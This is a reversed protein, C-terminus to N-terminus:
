CCTRCRCCPLCPAFCSLPNSRKKDDPARAKQHRVFSLFVQELTTQHVSYDQVNLSQKAGEMLSFINALKVNSDEIHIHIYGFHDDFVKASSIQSQIFEIVPENPAMQGDTLHGMQAILTYGQGFKNKLHQPSGLCMFRGNVMIAIRTCLADCEEMSHSTLVLTRGSARVQSLVTWLQRRAGPDMGSTPEDLLIFAPDGVLSLATSLKRKNGGSYAGVLKDAHPKLMLVDILDDCVSSIHEKPVGKLNCFLTLTERGTMHDLLADFQPCYGMNAQVDKINNKIDFKNVYANGETPEELGTLMKFTTSKGAGNQGLLGFCEQAPVGVSIHDVAPFHGFQKVLDAIVLSDSVLLQPLPTLQIREGEKIVDHDETTMWKPESQDSDEVQDSGGQNDRELLPSSENVQVRSKYARALRHFFGYEFLFLLSAYFVCQLALLLINRGIAPSSLSLTDSEFDLCFDGCNGYDRCCPFTINLKCVEQYNYDYCFEKNKHNSYMDVIAMGLNFNPFLIGLAYRLTDAGSRSRSTIIVIYTLLTSFISTFVHYMLTVVLGSAPAKFLFQLVYSFPLVSMGYAVLLLFFPFVNGDGIYAKEDFALFVFIIFVSPLIYNIYDGIFNPLWYMFPSVGSVNQLHKSGTEREQILPFVFSSVLFAMGFTINTSITVGSLVASDSKQKSRDEAEMPMPFISTEISYDSGMIYKVLAQMVTVLAIPEAHWPRDNFFASVVSANSSSNDSEFDAGIIVEESFTSIGNDKAERLLYESFSPWEVRDVLHPLDSTSNFLGVYTMALTQSLQTPWVGYSYPVSTRGFHSLDFIRETEDDDGPLANSFFNALVAYVIPTTLQFIFIFKHRMAILVKKILLAKLQTIKLEMNELKTYGRNFRLTDAPQKSITVTGNQDHVLAGNSKNSPASKTRMHAKNDELIEGKERTRELAVSEVLRTGDPEVHYHDDHKIVSPDANTHANCGFLANIRNRTSTLFSTPTSDEEEEEEEEKDSEHYEPASGVKICVEEMTTATTGFGEIGLQEKQEDLDRFLDAFKESQQDPLTYVVESGYEELYASGPIQSTVLSTIQGVDCEENKVVILRYGGGYLKKLFLSSGCCKVMGDAMIAIRDGLVDAEDMFHTTLLMTRSNKNRQLVDWIYRRSAPDMGSSPEDLIVVKSGFILAIGVSLKRKQGGSLHRSQTQEKGELGVESVMTEAEVKAQDKPCGKLQAYFQLHETVTLGDFLINHQPCLGLSGRVGEIDTRVDYGNIVATGSSPPTFGTLMSMTTTKGAGNHGLLVTIQGQYMNLTTNKVVVKEGYKKKLGTTRIGAPLDPEREFHVTRKGSPRPSSPLPLSTDPSTKTHGVWYSKMFPFHLPRPVGYDGPYVNDMYWTITMYIAADVLLMIMADTISYTGDATPPDNMNSFKAGAGTGEYDGLADSALAMAMNLDLSIVMKTTHSMDNYDDRFIMHPVFIGFFVIGSVAAGVNAKQTFTSIMFCFSTVALTYCLMLLM